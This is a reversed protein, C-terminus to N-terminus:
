ERHSQDHEPDSEHVWLEFIAKQIREFYLSLLEYAGM